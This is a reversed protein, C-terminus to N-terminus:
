KDAKPAKEKGSIEDLDIRWVATFRDSAEIARAFTAQNVAEPTLKQCLALLASVREEHDTVECATGTAIVSKFYTTYEFPPVFSPRDEGVFTVCVRPNQRLLELKRGEKAGHFYLSNGVRVLSLPLCYPTGEGTSIAVVGHSCQDMVDLSFARDRARDARRM